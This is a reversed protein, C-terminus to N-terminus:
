TPIASSGIIDGFSLAREVAFSANELEFPEIKGNQPLALLIKCAAIGARTQM